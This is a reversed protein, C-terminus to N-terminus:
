DKAETMREAQDLTMALLLRAGTTADEPSCWEDEAHSIGDRCPVFILASACVTTMSLADHATLTTMERVSLGMDAALGAATARLEPCFDVAERPHAPDIAIRTRTDAGIADAAARIRANIDALGEATEHVAMYTLKTLHPINVRNNPWNDIVTASVRGAPDVAQGIDDIALILRAAASLANKRQGMPQIQAHANAGHVEVFGSCMFTSRTVIGIDTGEAELIPGQEIHLELYRHVPHGPTVPGALRHRILDDALVTGDRDRRSLAADLPLLGAFVASGMVGPQYRAGEENTWNVVELPHRTAIDADNLARVVALGALVGLVGDFKGGPMQTDLHSGIMVPPLDESGPRRAITNGIADVTVTMGAEEAWHRFLARGAADTQTLAPRYSGGAETGGIAGMTMLDSWLRAGDLDPLTM